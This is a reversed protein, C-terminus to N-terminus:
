NRAHNGGHSIPEKLKFGNRDIVGTKCQRYHRRCFRGYRDKSCKGTGANKAACELGRERSPEKLKKGNKDIVGISYQYYHRKCFRGCTHKTCKGMGSNKAICDPFEVGNYFGRLKRGSKDLIGRYYQDSHYQCFRGCKRGHCIGTGSNKALCELFKFGIFERLKDGNKDIIGAQYQSAHLTCFRGHSKKSCKGTGSNKAMCVHFIKGEKLDRLKNGNKDIIGSHFQSWHTQCFRGNKISSCKGSDKAICNLFKLNGRKPRKQAQASISRISISSKVLLKRIVRQSRLFMKSLSSISKGGMYLSKNSDEPSFNISRTEARKRVGADNEATRNKNWSNGLKSRSMKEKSEPSHRHTLSKQRIKEKTEASHKIVQLKRKKSIKAKIEDSRKQGYLPHNPGRVSYAERYINYLNGENWLLDLWYQERKMLDAEPCFEVCVFKFFSEGFKNFSNQLHHCAHKNHRLDNFHSNRRKRLNNTSGVYLKGSMLNLINYIGPVDPLNTGKVPDGDM